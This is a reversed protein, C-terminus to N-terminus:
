ERRRDEYPSVLKWWLLPRSTRRLVPVRPLELMGDGVQCRGRRTTTASLYNAQGVMAVHDQTFEGFPYCFHDVASGTVQELEAKCLAIEANCAAADLACLRVHNRTHAGVEQGGAIWQRLHAAGMLESPPVGQQADWVNTQGLLGSVAYCTSSFGHRQLVPLAHILNNLYGDDFTVGFVKGHREGRLYPLLATMSLGQYGLMHLFGMQREFDAPAVSLSRFATGKPAPEAIQHYTLIPVPSLSHIQSNVM